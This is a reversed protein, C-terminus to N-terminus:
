NVSGVPPLAALKDAAAFAQEARELEEHYARAIEERDLLPILSHRRRVADAANKSIAQRERWIENFDKIM